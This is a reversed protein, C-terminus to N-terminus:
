ASTPTHSTIPLRYSNSIIFLVKGDTRDSFNMNITSGCNTETGMTPVTKIKLKKKWKVGFLYSLKATIQIVM